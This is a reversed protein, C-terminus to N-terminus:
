KIPCAGSACDEDYSDDVMGAVGKTLTHYTDSDIREYPAQERSEDVMITTGKLYPLHPKIIGMLEEVNDGPRINMTYSVANNAYQTQYMRQVNILDDLSIEDVSELVEPAIGRDELEQVLSEKTPFEVVWTYPTYSDETVTYGESRFQEVRAAQDPDVMSYRVRRIFYRAYIPHIGESRGALKAITGTPAVTTTKVPVPIRLQHTYAYAENNVTIQMISLEYPISVHASLGLVSDHWSESFKIGRKAVFGAYGFHGVGIRRNRNVIDRTPEYSIDGFTARILFRTMLRHAELLGDFDVSGDANVFADL